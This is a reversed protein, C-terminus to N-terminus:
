VRGWTLPRTTGLTGCTLFGPDGIRIYPGYGEASTAARITRTAGFVQVERIKGSGVAKLVVLHDADPLGDFVKVNSEPAAPWLPQAAAGNWLFLLPQGPQYDRHLRHAPRFGQGVDVQLRIM